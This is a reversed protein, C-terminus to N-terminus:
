PLWFQSDGALLTAQLIQGSSSKLFVVVNLLSAPDEFVLEFEKTEGPALSAVPAVTLDSVLFYHRETGMDQYAVGFLQADSIAQDSTNTIRVYVPGSLYDSFRAAAIAVQPPSTLEKEIIRQYRGYLYEYDGGSVANSGDFIATPTGDANYYEYLAETEESSWLDNHVHYEVVLLRAKGLEDSLTKIAQM